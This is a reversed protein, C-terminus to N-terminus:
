STSPNRREAAIAGSDASAKSSSAQNAAGRTRRVNRHGQEVLSGPAIVLCRDLDDRLMVERFTSVPRSRTAAGPDDVLLFRLRQLPLLRNYVAEIQHRFPQITSSGVPAFPDILHALQIRRAESALEFDAGDADFRAIAGAFFRCALTSTAARQAPATTRRGRGTTLGARLSPALGKPNVGPRPRRRGSPCLRLAWGLLVAGIFALSSKSATVSSRIAAISCPALPQVM